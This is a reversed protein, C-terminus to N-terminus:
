AETKEVPWHLETVAQAEDGGAGPGGGELYYERAPGTIRYGQEQVWAALRRYTEPRDAYAGRHTECAVWGAPQVVLTVEGDGVTEGALELAAAYHAREPDASQPDDYLVALRVGKAPVGRDRLFEELQTFLAALRTYPGTGELCALKGTEIRRFEAM